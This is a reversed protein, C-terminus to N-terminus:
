GTGYEGYVYFEGLYIKQLVEHLGYLVLITHSCDFFSEDTPLEVGFGM